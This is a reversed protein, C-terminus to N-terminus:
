YEARLWDFHREQMKLFFGPELKFLKCLKEDFLTGVPKSGDLYAAVFDKRMYIDVALSEVTFSNPKLLEENIWEYVPTPMRENVTRSRVLIDKTVPTDIFSNGGIVHYSCQYSYEYVGEGMNGMDNFRVRIENALQKHELVDRNTRLVIVRIGKAMMELVTEHRENSDVIAVYNTDPIAGAAAIFSDVKNRFQIPTLHGEDTMDIVKAPKDLERYYQAATRALYPLYDFHRDTSLIVYRFYNLHHFISELKEKEITTGPQYLTKM